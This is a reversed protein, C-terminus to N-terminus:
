QYNLDDEETWYIKQRIVNQCDFCINYALKEAKGNKHDFKFLEWGVTCPKIDECIKCIVPAIM